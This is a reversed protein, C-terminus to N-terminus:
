SLAEQVCRAVWAMDEPGLDQHCPIELIQERLAAVEPFRAPDCSPHGTRWFDVTEIGRAALRAKVASKDRCPLPFFLPSVGPPLEAFPPAARDRLRGLLLFWNRRRAAVIAEHDARRAIHESLASMGLGVRAP